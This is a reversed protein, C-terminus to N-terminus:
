SKKLNVCFGPLQVPKWIHSLSPQCSNDQWARRIFGVVSVVKLQQASAGDEDKLLRVLEDKPRYIGVLQSMDNYLSCVRPDGSKYNAEKSINYDIMYRRRRDGVEQVRAKLNQIEKAIRRRTRAETLLNMCREIFSRFGASAGDVCLMFEDISDEIDYSLERVEAM